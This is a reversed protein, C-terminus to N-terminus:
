QYVLLSFFLMIFSFMVKVQSLKGSSFRKMIFHIIWYYLLTLNHFLALLGLHCQINPKVHTCNHLHQQV